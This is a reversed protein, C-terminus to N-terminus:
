NAPPSDSLHPTRVEIGFHGINIYGGLFVYRNNSPDGGLEFLTM